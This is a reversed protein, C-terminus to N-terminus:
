NECNKVFTNFQQNFTQAIWTFVPSVFKYVTKMAPNAKTKVTNFIAGGGKQSPFALNSDHQYLFSLCAFRVGVKFTLLWQHYVKDSGTYFM